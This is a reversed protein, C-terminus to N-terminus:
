ERIIKGIKLQLSKGTEFESSELLFILNEIPMGIAELKPFGNNGIPFQAL